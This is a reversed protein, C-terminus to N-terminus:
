NQTPIVFLTGPGNPDFGRRVEDGDLFGDGDTDINLPDTFYIDVEDRDSLNDGDTDSLSADLGLEREREDSLGDFDSDLVNTFENALEGLQAEPISPINGDTADEPNEGEAIVESSETAGGEGQSSMYAYIAFGVGIIVIAVIAGIMLKM